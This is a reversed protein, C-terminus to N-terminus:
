SSIIVIENNIYYFLPKSAFVDSSLIVISKKFDILVICFEGDLQKVFSNGYKQYAPIICEGDSKACKNFIKYNYIEGNFIVVIDDDIIPQPTKDGTIHLLNHVFTINKYTIINTLDPGRYKCFQNVYDVNKILINSVIFGCM